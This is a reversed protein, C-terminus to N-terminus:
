FPIEGYDTPPKSEPAAPPVAPPPRRAPAAKKAQASGGTAARLLSGFRAELGDVTADDAGGPQPSYDEPNIWAAKFFTKGKYVEEKVTIQVLSTPPPSSNVAKLSGKWGLALALQKATSVNAQGDKKVVWFDGFVTFDGYQTWDVWEQGDLQAVISFQISIAVSQSNDFTKVHWSTAQAKFIGARDIITM